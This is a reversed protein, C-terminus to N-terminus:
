KKMIWLSGGSNKQSEPFLAECDKQYFHWLYNLFLRIDVANNFQLWARLVYLENWSRGETLWGDPYEFPWFVDHIHAWVNPALRPLLQGFLRCVDSGAKAVHTTDVFLIDNSQLTEFYSWPLIKLNSCIIKHQNPLPAFNILRDPDPEVFVCHTDRLELFELIDLFCAYQFQDVFALIHLPRLHNLLCALSVADFYSYSQNEYFFRRGPRATEANATWGLKESIDSWTKGLTRLLTLQGQVNVNIGPLIRQPEEVSRVVTADSVDQPCIIPSLETGDDFLKKCWLKPRFEEASTQQPLFPKTSSEALDVCASM